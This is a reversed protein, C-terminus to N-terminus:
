TPAIKLDRRNNCWTNFRSWRRHDRGRPTAMNHSPGARSTAIEIQRLIWGLGNLNQDHYDSYDSHLEFLFVHLIEQALKVGHPVFDALVGTHLLKFQV